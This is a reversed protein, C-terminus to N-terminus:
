FSGRRIVNSIEKPGFKFLTDIISYIKSNPESTIEGAVKFKSERIIIGAKDFLSNDQYNQAGGGYVYETAGTAMCIKVLRETSTADINLESSNIFEPIPLEFLKYLEIVAFRNYSSLNPDSNNILEFILQSFEGFYPSKSYSNQVTAVMKERWNSDQFRVKSISGFKKSERDLPATAFYAGNAGNLETRNTWTSGSKQIEADDLFVFIDSIAIKRFYGLWPFFNPQHIAIRM